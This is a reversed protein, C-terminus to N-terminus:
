EASRLLLQATQGDSNAKCAKIINQIGTVNVKHLDEDTIDVTIPILSATHFVVDM